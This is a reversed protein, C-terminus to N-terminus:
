GPRSRTWWVAFGILLLAVGGLIAAEVGQMLWYHSAPQYIIYGQWGHDAACQLFSGSGTCAANVVDDSIPHALKNAFGQQIIWDQTLSISINMDVTSYFQKVPPVLWARLWGDMGLWVPAYALVTSAVAPISRRLLAGSAAGLAFAFAAYALPIVGEVDYSPMPFRGYLQDLPANWWTMVATLTATLAFIVALLVLLKSRLWRMRPLSQTWILQQTGQEFERALLPVGILIGYFAPLLNLWPVFSRLMDYQSFFSEMAGACRQPTIDAICGALGLRNYTAHMQMGTVLLYICLAALLGILILIEARHQRWTLWIM